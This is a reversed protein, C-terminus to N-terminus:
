AQELNNGPTSPLDNGQGTLRQRVCADLAEQLGDIVPGPPQRSVQLLGSM